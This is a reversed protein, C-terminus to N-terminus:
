KSNLMTHWKEARSTALRHRPTGSLFRQVARNRMAAFRPLSRDLEIFLTVRPRPGHNWASHTVTDDFLVGHRDEFEIVVDDVKLAADDGCDIGLHYRLVGANAGEHPIFEAGPDLLSFMASRAGPVMGVAASTVPFLAAVAPVAAQNNLFLGIRWGNEIGIDEAIVDRLMPVRGGADAFSDWESRISPWMEVLHDHWQVGDLSRIPNRPGEYRQVLGNNWEVLVSALREHASM